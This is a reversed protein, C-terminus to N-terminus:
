PCDPLSLLNNQDEGDAVTKIYKNGFRSIAVVVDIRRGGRMVYFGWQGSEIESITQQQDQHWRTGNPNVGGVRKIRDAPDDRPIKNICKIEAYNAAM